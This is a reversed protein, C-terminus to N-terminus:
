QYNYRYKYENIKGYCEFFHYIIQTLKQFCSETIEDELIESLIEEGFPCYDDDFFEEVKDKIDDLGELTEQYIGILRFVKQLDNGNENEIEQEIRELQNVVLITDDYNISLFQEMEENYQEQM